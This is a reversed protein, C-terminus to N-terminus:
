EIGGLLYRVAETPDAFTRARGAAIDALAKRESEQWRISWYYAQDAPIFVPIESSQVVNGSFVMAVGGSPEAVVTPPADHVSEYEIVMDM